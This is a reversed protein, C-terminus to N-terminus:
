RAFVRTVRRRFRASALRKGIVSLEEVLVAQLACSQSHSAFKETEVFPHVVYHTIQETLHLLESRHDDIGGVNRRLALKIIRFKLNQKELKLGVQISIKCRASRFGLNM